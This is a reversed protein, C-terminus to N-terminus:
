VQSGQTNESNQRNIKANSYSRTRTNPLTSYTSKNEFNRADGRFDQNSVGNFTNDEPNETLTTKVPKCKKAKVLLKIGDQETFGECEACGFNVFKNSQEKTTKSINTNDFMVPPPLPPIEDSDPYPESSGNATTRPGVGDFFPVLRM